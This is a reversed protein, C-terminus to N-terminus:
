RFHSLFVVFGRDSSGAQLSLNSGPVDLIYLLLPAWGVMINLTEKISYKEIKLHIKSSSILFACLIKTLFGSPFLGHLIDLQYLNPSSLLGPALEQSCSKDQEPPSNPGM